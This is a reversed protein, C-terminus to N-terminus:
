IKMIMIMEVLIQNNFLHIVIQVHISTLAPPCMYLTGASNFPFPPAEPM